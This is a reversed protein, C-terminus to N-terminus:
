EHGGLKMMRTKVDEIAAELRATEAPNLRVWDLGTMEQPTVSNLWRIVAATVRTTADKKTRVTVAM